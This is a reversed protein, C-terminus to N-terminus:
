LLTCVRVHACAAGSAGFADPPVQDQMLSLLPSVVVTVGRTIVAPLQYCLSKGARAGARTLGAAWRWGGSAHVPTAARRDTPHTHRRGFCGPPHPQAQTLRIPHSPAQMLWAAPPAAQRAHASHLCAPRTRCHTAGPLAAALASQALACRRRDAHPRLLGEGARRACADHRCCRAVRASTARRVPCGRSRYCAAPGAAKSAAPKRKAYPLCARRGAGAHRGPHGRAAAAPVGCQRVRAPQCLGARAHTAGSGADACLPGAARRARARAGGGRSTAARRGLACACTFRKEDQHKARASSWTRILPCPSAAHRGPLASLQL